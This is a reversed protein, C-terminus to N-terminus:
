HPEISSLRCISFAVPIVDSQPHCRFDQTTSGVMM